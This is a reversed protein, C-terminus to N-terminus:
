IMGRMKKITECKYKRIYGYSQGFASAIEKNSFGLSVHIMLRRENPTLQDLIAFFSQQIQYREYDTLIRENVERPDTCVLEQPIEFISAGKKWGKYKKKIGRCAQLLDNGELLLVILDHYLDEQDLSLSRVRRAIGGAIKRLEELAYQGTPTDLQEM